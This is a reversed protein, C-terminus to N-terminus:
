GRRCVYYIWADATGYQDPALPQGDIGVAEVPVFGVARLQALQKDVAIVYSMLGYCGAEDNVIAYDPESRAHRGNALANRIGLPYKVLQKLSPVPARVWSELAPIHKLSWAGTQPSNRNHASFVCIGAPSLVRRMEALAKLRDAHDLSSIGNYSFLVLAFSEDAFAALDRVDAVEFRTGPFRVRCREVMGPSYDVGVYDPSLELLAETTRGGGVGIDLIPGGEVLRRYRALIAAEAPLLGALRAYKRTEIPKSYTRLNIESIDPM